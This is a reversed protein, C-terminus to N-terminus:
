AVKNSLLQYVEAVSRPQKGNYFITRNADVVNRPYLMAAEQNPSSNLLKSTGGAGLVHAIYLEGKTPLRGLSKNLANINDQALLKVMATQAAPDNKDQIKIGTQQGYKAVMDAWTKNTFQYLGSASSKSNQANPNNNSEAKAIKSFVDNTQNSSQQPPQSHNNQMVQQATMAAGGLAIPAALSASGKQNQFIDPGFGTTSTHLATQSPRITANRVQNFFSNAPNQKEYETRAAAQQANRVDSTLGTQQAKNQNDIINQWEEDTVPRPQQGRGGVMPREPAPLALPASVAAEQAAPQIEEAARSMIPATERGMITDLANQAKGRAAYKGTQRLLTGAATLPIGGPVIASSGSTIVPLLINRSKGVDLGFTGLAREIQEGTGRQAVNKLAAWEDDSFGKKNNDNKTFNQFKRQLANADGESDKILQAIKDYRYAQSTANIGQQLDAIAQPSGASFDNVSVGSLADDLAHKAVLAKQGDANIGGGDVKSKTNTSIVDNLDQRFDHLKEPTINGAQLTKDFDSLVGATDTHRSSLNGVAEKVQNAINQAADDHLVAGDAASKKFYQQANQWNKDSNASIDDVSDAFAGKYRNAIGAPVEGLTNLTKGLVASTAAGELGGVGANEIRNTLNEDGKPKQLLGSLAGVKAGAKALDAVGNIEGLPTWSTPSGAVSGAISGSTGWFGEPQVGSSATEQNIKDYAAQRDLGASKEQVSNPDNFLGGIVPVSHLANGVDQGLGELGLRGENAANTFSQGFNSVFSADPSSPQYQKMLDQMSPTAPATQQPAYQKMLDQMSPM